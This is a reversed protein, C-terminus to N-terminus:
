EQRIVVRGGCGRAETSGQQAGSRPGRRTVFFDGVTCIRGGDPLRFSIHDIDRIELSVESEAWKGYPPLPRITEGRANNRGVRNPRGTRRASRGLGRIPTPLRKRSVVGGM